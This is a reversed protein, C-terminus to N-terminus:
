DRLQGDPVWSEALWEPARSNNRWGLLSSRLAWEAPFSVSRAMEVVYRPNHTRVLLDRDIRVAERWRGARRHTFRVWRHYVNIGDPDTAALGPHDALLRNYDTILHKSSHSMGAGDSQYALLPALVPICEAHEALRIWMDWDALLGQRASFGGVADYLSRHAVVGSGGGPVINYATSTVAASHIGDSHRFGIVRGRQDVIVTGTVSWRAGPGANRLAELQRVLKTPAYVDDDDLWAVYEGTAFEMGANRAVSVGKPTSHRIVQVSVTENAHRCVHDVPKTSGDNVVIIEVRVGVQRAVSRVARDVLFWREHTPIVVTVEPQLRKVRHDAM